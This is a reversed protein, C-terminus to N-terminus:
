ENFAALKAAKAEKAKKGARHRRMSSTTTTRANPDAAPKHHSAKKGEAPAAGSGSPVGSGSSSGASPEASDRWRAKLSASKGGDGAASDEEASGEDSDEEPSGEDSDEAGSREDLEADGVAEPTNQLAARLAQKAQMTAWMRERMAPDAIGGADGGRKALDTIVQYTMVLEEEMKVTADTVAKQWALTQTQWGIERRIYRQMKGVAAAKIDRAAEIIEDMEEQEEEEDSDQAGFQQVKNDCVSDIIRKIVRKSPPKMGFYGGRKAEMEADLLWETVEEETYLAKKIRFMRAEAKSRQRAKIGVMFEGWTDDMLTQWQSETNANVKPAVMHNKLAAWATPKATGRIVHQKHRRAKVEEDVSSDSDSEVDEATKMVDVLLGVGGTEKAILLQQAPDKTRLENVNVNMAKRLVSSRLAQQRVLAWRRRARASQAPTNTNTASIGVGADGEVSEVVAGAAGKGGGLASALVGVSAPTHSKRVAKLTRILANYSPHTGMIRGYRYSAAMTLDDLLTPEDLEGLNEKEEGFADGVIGLILNLLVFLLYAPVAFSYVCLTAYEVNGRIVSRDAFLRGVIDLSSGLMMEFHFNFGKDFSSLAEETTGLMVHGIMTSLFLSIFFIILFHLLDLSSRSLTRVTLDLHRQFDVMKLSRLVMLLLSIGSITFYSTLIDSLQLITMMTQGLKEIGSEDTPLEWRHQTEAAVAAGALGDSRVAAVLAEAETQNSAAKYPLLYNATPQAANDYVDYRLLPSLASRQLAQYSIWMSVSMLQLAINAADIVNWFSSFHLFIGRILHGEDWIAGFLESLELMAAYAFMMALVIECGLQVSGDNVGDGNQDRWDTYWGVNMNTLKHSVHIVGAGTFNFMVVVNALQKLNANYTVAQATVSRTMTDFYLGEKLYQLMNGLNHRTSAIDLFVPFGDPYGPVERHFFGYPTGVADPDVDTDVPRLKGSNRSTNYYDTVFDELEVNYLSGEGKGSQPRRFVPDVGFANTSLEDARCQASINVFRGGCDVLENRTQHILLGGILRNANGVYRRGIYSSPAAYQASTGGQLIGYGNWDTVSTQAGFYGTGGSGSSTQLLSRRWGGASAFNEEPPSVGESEAFLAKAAATFLADAAIDAADDRPEDADLLRRRAPPPAPPPPSPPVPPPSPPSPPPAPNPPPSGFQSYATSNFFIEATGLGTRYECAQGLGDEGAGLANITAKLADAQQKLLIELEAVSELVQQQVTITADLVQLTEEAQSQLEKLSADGIELLTKWYDGLRRKFAAPNGGALAIADVTAQLETTATDMRQAIVSIEGQISALVAADEDVDPSETGTTSSANTTVNTGSSNSLSADLSSSVSSGLDSSLLRRRRADTTVVTADFYTLKYKFTTKNTAADSTFSLIELDDAGRIIFNPFSTEFVEKLNEAQYTRFADQFGDLEWVSTDM